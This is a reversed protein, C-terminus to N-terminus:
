SRPCDPLSLLNDPHVKDAITKLYKSGNHKAIIVDAVKGGGKTWFSWKGSEIRDIARELTM